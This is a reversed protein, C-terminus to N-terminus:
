RAAAHRTRSSPLCPPSSCRAAKVRGACWGGHEVEPDARAGPEFLRLLVVRALSSSASASSRCERRSSVRRPQHLNSGCESAIFGPARQVREGMGRPSCIAFGASPPGARGTKRKRSPRISRTGANGACTVSSHCESRCPIAWTSVLSNCHHARCITPAAVCAFSNSAIMPAIVIVQWARPSHRASRAPATRAHLLM